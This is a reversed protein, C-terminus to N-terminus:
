KYARFADKRPRSHFSQTALAAAMIVTEELLGFAHGLLMLRGVHVDVPLEALVRGVFTLDGDYPNMPFKSAALAGVQACYFLNQVSEESM